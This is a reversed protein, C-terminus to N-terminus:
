PGHLFSPSNTTRTCYWVQIEPTMMANFNPTAERLPPRRSALLGRTPPTVRPRGTSSMGPGDIRVVAAATTASAAGTDNAM